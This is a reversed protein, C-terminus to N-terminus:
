HRFSASFDFMGAFGDHQEIAGITRACIIIKVADANLGYGDQENLVSEEQVWRPRAPCCFFNSGIWFCLEDRQMKMDKIKEIEYKAPLWSAAIELYGQSSLGPNGLATSIQM